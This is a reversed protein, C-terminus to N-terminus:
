DGVHAAKQNAPLGDRFEEEVVAAIWGYSSAPKMCKEHLRRLLRALDELSCGNMGRVVRRIIARDPDGLDRGSRQSFLRMWKGIETFLDSQREDHDDDKQLPVVSSSSEEERNKESTLLSLATQVSESKSTHASETTSTQVSSTQVSEGALLTLQVLEVRPPEARRRRKPLDHVLFAQDVRQDGMARALAIAEKEVQKKYNVAAELDAYFRNQKEVPWGDCIKRQAPTLLVLRYLSTKEGLSSISIPKCNALLYVRHPHKRGSAENRGGIRILGRAVASQWTRRFNGDDMGLRKQLQRLRVERGEEDVCYPSRHGYGVTLSWVLAMLRMLPPEGIGSWYQHQAPPFPDWAGTPSGMAKMLATTRLPADGEIPAPGKRAPAPASM